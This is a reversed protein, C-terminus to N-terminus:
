AYLRMSDLKVIWRMSDLKVIGQESCRRPLRVCARHTGFQMYCSGACLEHGCSRPVM